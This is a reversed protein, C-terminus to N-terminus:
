KLAWKVPLSFCLHSPVSAGLTLPLTQDEADPGLFGLESVLQPDFPCVIQPGERLISHEGCSLGSVTGESM